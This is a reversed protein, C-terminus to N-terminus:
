SLNEIWFIGWINHKQASDPVSVTVRSSAFYLPCSNIKVEPIRVWLAILYKVKHPGWKCLRSNYIYMKLKRM